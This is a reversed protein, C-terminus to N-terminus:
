LEYAKDFVAVAFDIDDVLHFGDNKIAWAFRKSAARGAWIAKERYTCAPGPYPFEVGDWNACPFELIRPFTAFRPQKTKESPEADLLQKRKLRIRFFFPPM